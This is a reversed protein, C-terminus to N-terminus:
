KRREAKYARKTARLRMKYIKKELKKVRLEAKALKKADKESLPIPEAFTAEEEKKRLHSRLSKLDSRVENLPRFGVRFLTKNKLSDECKPVISVRLLLSDLDYGDDGTQPDVRKKAKYPIITGIAAATLLRASTRCTASRIAKKAAQLKKQTQNM